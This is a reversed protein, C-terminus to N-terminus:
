WADKDIERRARYEIKRTLARYLAKEEPTLNMKNGLANWASRETIPMEPVENYYGEEPRLNWAKVSEITINTTM